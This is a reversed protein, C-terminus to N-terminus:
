TYRCFIHIFRINTIYTFVPNPMVYGTITSIDSLWVLSMDTDIKANTFNLILHVVKRLTKQM